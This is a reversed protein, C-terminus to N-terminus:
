SKQEILVAHCREFVELFAKEPAEDAVYTKQFVASAMIASLIAITHRENAKIVDELTAMLQVILQTQALRVIDRLNSLPIIALLRATLALQCEPERRM